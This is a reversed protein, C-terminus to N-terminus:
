REYSTPSQEWSRTAANWTWVNEGDLVVASLKRPEEELAKSQPLNQDNFVLTTTFWTESSGPNETTVLTAVAGNDHYNSIVSISSVPTQRDTVEYQLRGDPAFLRITRHNNVWPTIVVSPQQPLTTYYHIEPDDVAPTQPSTAKTTIPTVKPEQAHVPAVVQRLTDPVPLKQRKIVTAPPAADCGWCIVCLLLSVTHIVHM